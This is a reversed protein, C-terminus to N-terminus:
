REEVQVPEGEKVGDAAPNIVVLDGEKLGEVVQVRLGNDLGVKIPTLVTRGDVIRFCSASSTTDKSWLASTPITLGSQSDSLVITVVGYMGERLKNASNDLDIETRMTRTQADEAEAFRAVTGRFTQGPLAHFAVAAPNGRELFPIDRDPIFTVIRMKDTRAVRFLPHSAGTDAARVFDGPHFGRLTVVGEYPSVIRTSDAIIQARERSTEARVVGSQALQLDGMALEVRSQASSQEARSKTVAAQAALADARASELPEEQLALERPGIVKDEFLKKSARLKTEQLRVIAAARAVGAEAQAVAAASAELESRATKLRAEALRVAVRAQTVAQAAQEADKVLEPADIVALLAGQKVRDGIDVNQEKLYGSVRAFLEASEFPHVSGPQATTRRVEGRKVREVRVRRDRAQDKDKAAPEDARPRVLTVSGLLGFAALVTVVIVGRAPARLVCSPAGPSRALSALRRGLQTSRTMALGLSERPRRLLGTTVELLTACYSAAGGLWAVCLDDCAQERVGAILRGILWVLPHPWYLAQVLRLLVNWGYDGRRVHALEHLLVADITAASASEVLTEPLVIVPRLWGVIVPVSTRQSRALRVRRAVNLRGRWRDLAEVWRPELVAPSSRRLREVAWLSLMLRAVLAAAVATYALFVAASWDRGPHPAPPPIFDPSPLNSPALLSVASIPGQPATLRLRPFVVAAVPLLLLGLLCANWIVSRVLPRGRGLIGHVALAALMLLTARLGVSLSMALASHIELSALGPIDIM